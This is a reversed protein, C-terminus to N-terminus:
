AEGRPVVLMRAAVRPCVPHLAIRAVPVVFYFLYRRM